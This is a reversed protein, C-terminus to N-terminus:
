IYSLSMGSAAYGYVRFGHEVREGPVHVEQLAKLVAAEQSSSIVRIETWGISDYGGERFHYYWECDWPSLYGSLDKTRWAPSLDGLSYMARRLEEWKTANM